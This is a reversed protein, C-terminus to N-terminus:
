YKVMRGFTDIIQHRLLYALRCVSFSSTSIKGTSCDILEYIILEVPGPKRSM